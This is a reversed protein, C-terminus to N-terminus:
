GAWYFRFVECNISDFFVERGIYQSAVEQVKKWKEFATRDVLSFPEAPASSYGSCISAIASKPGPTLWEECGELIDRNEFELVEPGWVDKIAQKIADFPSLHGNPEDPHYDRPTDEHPGSDELPEDEATPREVESDELFAYIGLVMESHFKQLRELEEKTDELEKKIREVDESEAAAAACMMANSSPADWNDYKDPNSMVEALSVGHLEEAERAAAKFLEKNENDTM